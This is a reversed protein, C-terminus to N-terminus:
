PHLRSTNKKVALTYGHQGTREQLWIGPLPADLAANDSDLLNESTFSEDWKQDGSSIGPRSIVNGQSDLLLAYGRDSVQTNIIQQNITELTVDTGVVWTWGHNDMGLPRSCTVM